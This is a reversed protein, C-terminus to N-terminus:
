SLAARCLPCKGGDSARRVCAELCCAHFTHGCATKAIPWHVTDTFMETCIACADDQVSAVIKRMEDDKARCEGLTRCSRRVWRRNNTFTDRQSFFVSNPVIHVEKTSQGTCVAVCADLRTGQQVGDWAAELDASPEPQYPVWDFERAAPLHTRTCWEWRVVTPVEPLPHTRRRGVDFSEDGGRHLNWVGDEFYVPVSEAGDPVFAVSRKGMPKRGRAPTTQWHLGQAHDFHIEANFCAAGLEVSTEGREMAGRLRAQSESPYASVSGSM